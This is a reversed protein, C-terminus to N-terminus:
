CAPDTNARVAEERATDDQWMCLGCVRQVVKHCGSLLGAVRLTSSGLPVDAVVNEKGPGHRVDWTYEAVFSLHRQQRATLADTLRHLYFVLLKHDTLV